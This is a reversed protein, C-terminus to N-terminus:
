RKVNKAKRQKAKHCKMLTGVKLDYSKLAATIVLYEFFLKIELNKLDSNLKERSCSTILFEVVFDEIKVPILMCIDGELGMYIIDGIEINSLPVYCVGDKKRTICTIYSHKKDRYKRYEKLSLMWASGDGKL